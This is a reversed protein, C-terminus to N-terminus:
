QEEIILSSEDLLEKLIDMPIVKLLYEYALTYNDFKLVQGYADLLYENGRSSRSIVYHKGESM